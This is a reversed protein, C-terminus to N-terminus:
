ADRRLWWGAVMLALVGVVLLAILWGDLGGRAAAPEGDLTTAGDVLGSNDALEEDTEGDAGYSIPEDGGSVMTPEDSDSEGGTTSTIGMEGDGPAGNAPASVPHRWDAPRYQAYDEQWESTNTCDHDEYPASDDHLVFLYKAKAYKRDVSSRAPPQGDAAGHPSGNVETVPPVDPGKWVEEVRVTARHGEDALAEVTGVFVQKAEAIAQEMPPPPACSAAAPGAVVILSALAGAATIIARGWTARRM